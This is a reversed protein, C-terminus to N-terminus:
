LRSGALEVQSRGRRPPRGLHGVFLAIARQQAAEAPAPDANARATIEAGADVGVLPRIM